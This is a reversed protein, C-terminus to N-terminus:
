TSGDEDVIEVRPLRDPDLADPSAAVIIQARGEMLVLLAEAYRDWRVLAEVEYGRDECWRYARPLTHLGAYVIVARLAM